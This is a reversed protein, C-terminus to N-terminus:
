ECTTLSCVNVGTKPAANTPITTGAIWQRVLRQPYGCRHNLNYGSDAHGEKLIQGKTDKLHCENANHNKGKCRDCNRAGQLKVNHISAAGSPKSEMRINAETPQRELAKAFTLDNESSLRRQCAENWIGSVYQDRLSADLNASFESDAACHVLCCM